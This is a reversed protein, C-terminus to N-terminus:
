ARPEEADFEPIHDHDELRDGLQRRMFLAVAIQLAVVSVVLTVTISLLNAQILPWKAMVGVGAPVFLLALYRMLGDCTLRLGDPVRGYLMLGILLVVMGIVPGPIPLHLLNAISEGILQCCLLISMGSLLPM